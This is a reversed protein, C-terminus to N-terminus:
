KPQENPKSQDLFTLWCFFNFNIRWLCIFNDGKLVRKIWDCWWSGLCVLLMFLNWCKNAILQALFLIKTSKSLFWPFSVIRGCLVVARDQMLFNGDYLCWFSQRQVYNESQELFPWLANWVLTGDRGTHALQHSNTNAQSLQDVHDMLTYLCIYPMDPLTDQKDQGMRDRGTRDQRLLRKLYLSSGPSM